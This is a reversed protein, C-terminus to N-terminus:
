VASYDYSYQYEGSHWQHLANSGLQLGGALITLPLATSIIKIRTKFAYFPEKAIDKQSSDICNNTAYQPIEPTM